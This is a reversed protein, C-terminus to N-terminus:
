FVVSIANKNPPAMQQRPWPRTLRYMYQPRSSLSARANTEMGENADAGNQRGELDVVVNGLGGPGARQHRNGAEGVGNNRGGHLKLALPKHQAQARLHKGNGPRHQHVADRGGNKVPKNQPRQLQKM